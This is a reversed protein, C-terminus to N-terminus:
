KTSGYGWIRSIIRDGLGLLRLIIVPLGSQGDSSGSKCPM